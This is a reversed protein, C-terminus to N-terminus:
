FCFVSFFQNICIKSITRIFISILDGNEDQHNSVKKTEINEEKIEPEYSNIINNNKSYENMHINGDKNNEIQCDIIQNESSAALYIGHVRNNYIECNSIINQNNNASIADIGTHTNDYFECNTIKNNSSYQLEIGDCNDHFICNIIENTGCNSYQSGLFAIGEDQCRYFICNEILNKSTWIAIGVPTDHIECNQITISDATIRIATTYLGPAGNSIRLNKLITGPAGIRVAYRGEQSIPNIITYDKNEGLLTIQKRIDIIESYTGKKIFITSGIDAHEIAQQISTYDGKGSPDVTITKNTEAQVNTITIALTFLILLIAIKIDRRKM